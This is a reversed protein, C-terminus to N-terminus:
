KLKNGEATSWRLTFMFADKENEFQWYLAHTTEARWLGECNEECWWKMSDINLYGVTDFNIRHSYTARSRTSLIRQLRSGLETNKLSGNSAM